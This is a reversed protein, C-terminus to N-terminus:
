RGAALVLAFRVITTTGTRLFRSPLLYPPWALLTPLSSYLIAGTVLAVENKFDYIPNM